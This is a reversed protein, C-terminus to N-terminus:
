KNTYTALRQKILQGSSSPTGNWDTILAPFHCIDEARQAATYSGSVPPPTWWAWAIWSMGKREAFDLVAQYYSLRTCDYAGFESIIVPDTAALKGFADEWTDPQKDPWDYPHTGYVINYGKVRFEPVGNLFYGWHTGGLLVLNRAGAARVADYLQQMGVARFGERVPGGPYDPGTPIDGGNLWMDWTIEHPENYFEFIVGGDNKFTKAVDKWFPLSNNLDPMQQGDPTEAYQKNGRDSAHNDLIVALGLARAKTVIDIVRARYTPDYQRNGELWFVQTIPLRLVNAGWGRMLTIDDGINVIRDDGGPSWQLAPRTMGYFLTPKCTSPDYIQNGIVSYGGPAAATANATYEVFPRASNRLVAHVRNVGGEYGVKWAGAAIGDAGTVAVSPSVAGGSGQVEFGVSAGAVPSGAGDTVRVVLQEVKCGAPVLASAGGSVRAIAVGPSEKGTAQVTLSREGHSARLSNAGPQPGLRWEASAIGDDGTTVGGEVVAFTVPQGAIGVGKADVLRVKISDALPFGPEGSLSADGVVVLKDPVSFQPGTADTCSAAALVLVSLLRKMMEVALIGYASNCRM